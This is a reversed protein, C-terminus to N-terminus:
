VLFQISYSLKKEERAINLKVNLINIFGPATKLVMEVNIDLDLM